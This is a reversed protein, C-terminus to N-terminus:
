PPQWQSPDTTYLGKGMVTELRGEAKLLQIARECTGPAVGFEEVLARKSPIRRRPPYRGAEMRGRIIGALQQYVPVNSDHNITM